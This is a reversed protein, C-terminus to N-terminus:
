NQADPTRRAGDWVVAWSPVAGREAADLSLIEAELEWPMDPWRRSGMPAKPYRFGSGILGKARLRETWARVLRFVRFSNRRCEPEATTAAAAADVANLSEGASEWVSARQLLFEALEGRPTLSRLYGFFAEARMDFPLPWGRYHDDPHANVGDHSTGEINVRVGTASDDWRCFVHGNTYVLRVPYGIRRGVATYVVPLSACTGGPGQIAGHLFQDDTVFPDDSKAGVKAPNYRVGCRRQLLHVLKVMRFLPESGGYEDAVRPFESQLARETLERVGLAWDDLCTLCRAADIRESGPLGVACALNIVAVDTAALEADTLRVLFRWDPVLSAKDRM